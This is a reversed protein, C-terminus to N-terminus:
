QYNEELLKDIFSDLKNDFYDNHVVQSISEMFDSTVALTYPATRNNDVIMIGYDKFSKLLRKFKISSRIDFSVDAEAQHEHRGRKFFNRVLILIDKQIKEKHIERIDKTKLLNKLNDSLTCTDFTEDTLDQKKKELVKSYQEEFFIECGIFRTDKNIKSNMFGIYNKFKSNYVRKNEFNLPYFKGIIFLNNIGYESYFIKSIIETKEESNEKSSEFLIYLLTSIANELIRKNEDSKQYEGLIVELYKEINTSTSKEKIIKILKNEGNYYRALIKAKKVSFNNLKISNLCHFHHKLV